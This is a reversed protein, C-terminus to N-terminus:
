AALAQVESCVRQRRRWWGLLGGCVAILGPFGAGVSPGPVTAVTARLYEETNTGNTDSKAAFTLELFLPDVTLVGLNMTLTQINNDGRVLGGPIEAATIIGTLPS